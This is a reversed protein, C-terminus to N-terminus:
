GQLIRMRIHCTLADLEQLENGPLIQVFMEWRLSPLFQRDMVPYGFLLEPDRLPIILSLRSLQEPTLFLALNKFIAADEDRSKRMDRVFMLFNSKGVESELEPHQAGELGVYRICLPREGQMHKLRHEFTSRPHKGESESFESRDVWTDTKRLRAMLGHVGSDVGGFVLVQSFLGNDPTLRVIKANAPTAMKGAQVTPETAAMGEIDTSEDDDMAPLAAYVRHLYEGLEPRKSAVDSLKLRLTADADTALVVGRRPGPNLRQLVQLFFSCTEFLEQGNLYQLERLSPVVRRLQPWDPQRLCQLLSLGLPGPIRRHIWAASVSSLRDSSEAVPDVRPDALSSLEALEPFQNILAPVSLDAIMQGLAKEREHPMRPGRACYARLVYSLFRAARHAQLPTKRSDLIRDLDRTVTQRLRETKEPLAELVPVAQVGNLLTTTSTMLNSPLGAAALVTSLRQCFHATAAEVAPARVPRFDLLTGNACGTRGNSFKAVWPREFVVPRSPPGELRVTWLRHESATVPGSMVLDTVLVRGSLIPFEFRITAEVSTGLTPESGGSTNLYGDRVFRPLM